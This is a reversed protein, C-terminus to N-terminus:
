ANFLSGTDTSPIGTDAISAYLNPYQHTIATESAAIRFKKLAIGM